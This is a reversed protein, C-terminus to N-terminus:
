VHARGIQLVAYAFLANSQGASYNARFVDIITMLSYADDLAEGAIAGMIADSDYIQYGNDQKLM